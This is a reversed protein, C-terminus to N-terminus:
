LPTDRVPFQCSHIRSTFPLGSAARLRQSAGRPLITRDLWRRDHHQDGDHRRLRRQATYSGAGSPHAAAAVTLRSSAANFRVYRSARRWRSTAVIRYMESSVSGGAMLLRAEVVLRRIQAENKGGIWWTAWIALPAYPVGGYLLSALLL